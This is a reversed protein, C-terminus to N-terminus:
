HAIGLLGMVLEAAGGAMVVLVLPPYLVTAAAFRLFRPSEPNRDPLAIFILVAGVAVMVGGILEASNM